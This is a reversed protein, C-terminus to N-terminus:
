DVLNDIGSVVGYGGLGALAVGLGFRGKHNKIYDPFNKKIMSAKSQQNAGGKIYETGIDKSTKAAMYRNVGGDEDHKFMKNYSSYPVTMKLVEASKRSHPKVLGAFQGKAGKREVKKMEKQYTEINIKGSNLDEQLQYLGKFSDEMASKVKPDGELNAYFNAYPAISTGHVYGASGKIFGEHGIIESSGGKGGMSAKFGQEKIKEANAKSTGHYLTKMGTLRDVSSALSVGGIAVSALAVGNSTDSVRDYPENAM